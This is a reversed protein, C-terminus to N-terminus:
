ANTRAWPIVELRAWPIQEGTDEAVGFQEPTRYLRDLAADIEALERSVRTANAADFEEQMTDTGRDAMHMPVASLDGDQAQESEQAGDGRADRLLQQVREREELLRQELQRLQETTLPM